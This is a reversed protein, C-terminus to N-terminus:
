RGGHGEREAMAGKVGDAVLRELLLRAHPVFQGPGFRDEVAASLPAGRLGPASLQAAIRAALDENPAVMTGLEGDGLADKAGGVGLGLAPTGCAMAEVFAIGFGEGTSPMVFLDARRYLEVLRDKSVAGVFRVREM